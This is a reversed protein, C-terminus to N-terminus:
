FKIQITVQHHYSKKYIRKISGQPKSHIINKIYYIGIKIRELFYSSSPWITNGGRM